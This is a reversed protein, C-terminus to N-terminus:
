AKSPKIFLLAINTPRILIENAVSGIFLDKIMSDSKIGLIMVEANEAEAYNNLSTAIGEEHSSIVKLPKLESFEKTWKREKALRDEQTIQDIEKQPMLPYYFIKSVHVPLKVITEGLRNTEFKNSWDVIGKTYKSFTIAEVVSKIPTKFTEPVLMVPSPFLRVLKNTLAGNGRLNQKNGLILLDYRQKESINSFSTESFRDSTVAVDFAYNLGSSKIDRTIKTKVKRRIEDLKDTSLMGSPLETVKINHLFTIKDFDLIQELTNIYSLLHHDMQSLDLGVLIRLPAKTIEM